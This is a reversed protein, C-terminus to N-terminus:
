LYIRYVGMFQGMDPPGGMSEFPPAACARPAAAPPARCLDLRSAPHDPTTVRTANTQVRAHRTYLSYGFAVGCASPLRRVM